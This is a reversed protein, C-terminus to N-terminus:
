ATCTVPNYYAKIGDYNTDGNMNLSTTCSKVSM